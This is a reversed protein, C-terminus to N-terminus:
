LVKNAEEVSQAWSEAATQKKQDVRLLGNVIATNIDGAKPGLYQAKMKQVSESFIQGVPANSFYPNVYDKIVADSYLTSTSPFNGASRFVKAQQEPATLWKVLEFAEQANKSQQPVTLFSGGWNGGGGPVDAIDWKGAADKAQEQIYAMMWSPCAVTAFSGKQFGTNWAPSWAEIGASLGASMAEATKDFAGKVAPNTEFVVNDSDDYLGVDAQGLISRYMVTPGDM